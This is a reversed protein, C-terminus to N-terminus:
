KQNRENKGNKNKGDKFFISKPVSFYKWQFYHDM